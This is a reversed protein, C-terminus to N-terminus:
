EDIEIRVRRIRWGTPEASAFHSLLGNMIALNEEAGSRTSSLCLLIARGSVDVPAYAIQPKRDSMPPTM